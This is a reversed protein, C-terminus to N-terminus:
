FCYQRFLFTLRSSAEIRLIIYYCYITALNKTEITIMTSLAWKVESVLDIYERHASHMWPGEIENIAM